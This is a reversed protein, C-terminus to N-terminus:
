GKDETANRRAIAKREAFNTTDNVNSDGPSESLENEVGTILDTIAFADEIAIRKAQAAVKMKEPDPKQEDDIIPEEAVKILEQVAIKGAEIIRLKTECSM